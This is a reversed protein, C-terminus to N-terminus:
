REIEMRLKDADARPLAQASLVDIGYTLFFRRYSDVDDRGKARQAGAWVAIANRLEAQAEQKEIHRNKAGRGAM